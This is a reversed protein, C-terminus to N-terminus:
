NSVPNATAQATPLVPLDTNRGKLKAIGSEAFQMYYSAEQVLWGEHVLFAITRAVWTSELVTPLPSLSTAGSAFRARAATRDWVCGEIYANTSSRTHYIRGGYLAYSYIATSYSGRLFRRIAQIPQETLPLNSVSDNVQSFIGIFKVGEDSESPVEDGSALDDSRGYFAARYPNAKDSSIIEALEAETSVVADILGSVPVDAGDLTTLSTLYAVELANQSTGQLQLTRLAVQLAVRRPDTAM